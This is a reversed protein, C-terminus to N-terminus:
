PAPRADSMAASARALEDEVPAARGARHFGDWADPGLRSRAADLAGAIERAQIELRPMGERDHWGDASGILRAALEDCRLDALIAAYDEAVNAVSASDEYALTVRIVQRMMPDAEDARGLMRLTCALNQRVHAQQLAGCASIAHELAESELELARDLRGQNAEFGGVELLAIRTAEPEGAERVITVVEDYLERASALDGREWEVAALTRLPYPLDDRAGIRRLIEVSDRALQTRREPEKGAFRLANVLASMCRALAPSQDTGAEVATTLWRESDGLRGTINWVPGILAALELGLPRSGGEAELAWGLAVCINAHELDLEARAAAYDSTHSRAVGTRVLDLYHRAHRARTAQETDTADLEGTAFARITDLLAVRPEGDSGDGVTVLSADVLDLVLELVDGTVTDGGCVSAVAGLDAGGAFVGMRSLLAQHESDLLRYSWEITARLNRHRDPRTPDSSGIDLATGLRSLLAQPGLLKSRAAALEIALPLGDLAACVEAVIPASAATLAFDVRVRRAARVFLQVAPSAEIAATSLDSPLPLTPVAFEQEGAVHLPRRSTAVLRVQGGADLVRAVVLEAKRVQELNDLVLVVQRDALHQLVATAEDGEVPIGLTSAIAAWMGAADTVPALPVFYAGETMEPALARALEVALSTKGAGGPGTLTVLRAGDRVLRRLAALDANRGVLPAASRPLTSAAGLTRLPPFESDLGPIVLQFIREPQPIDKLRHVGLDRLTSGPPLRGAVLEATAASMAVQGGHAAAAIRAARHVDLGVYAGDHPIPAGTHLGMRVRVPVGAPWTTGALRHQATAVAAVAHEAVPFVVYFSDGETGLETGGHASWTERLVRRQSDLTEVYRDGLRTLLRTSGEMDSFLLTVTGVPHGTTTTM